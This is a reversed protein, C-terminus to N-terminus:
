QNGLNRLGLGGGGLLTGLLAEYKEREEVAIKARLEEEATLQADGFIKNMAPRPSVINLPMAAMDGLTIATSLLNKNDKFRNMKMLNRGIGGGVLQGLLSAGVGIGADEAALLSRGLADTGEPAMGASIAPWLLIDPGYRMLGEGLTQPKVTEYAFKAGKALKPALKELAMRLASSM